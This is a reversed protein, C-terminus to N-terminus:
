GRLSKLHARRRQAKKTKRVMSAHKHRGENTGQGHFHWGLIKPTLDLGIMGGSRSSGKGFLGIYNLLSFIRNTKEM